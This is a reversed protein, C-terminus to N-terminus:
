LLMMKIGTVLKSYARFPIFEKCNEYLYELFQIAQPYSDYDASTVICHLGSTVLYLRSVNWDEIDSANQSVVSIINHFKFKCAYELTWTLIKQKTDMRPSYRETVMKEKFEKSKLKENLNTEKAGPKGKGDFKSAEQKEKHDYTEPKRKEKSDNRDIKKKQKSEKAESINKEQSSKIEEKRKQKSEYEEGKAVCKEYKKQNKAKKKDM